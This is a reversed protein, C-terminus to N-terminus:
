LDNCVNSRIWPKPCTFPMWPPRRDASTSRGCPFKPGSGSRSCPAKAWNAAPRWALPESARSQQNGRCDGEGREPRHDGANGARGALEASQGAHRPGALCRHPCFRSTGRGAPGLQCGPRKNRVPRRGCGTGRLRGGPALAPVAEKAAASPVAIVLHSPDPLLERYMGALELLRGAAVEGPQVHVFIFCEGPMAVAHEIGRMRRLHRLRAAVRGPIAPLLPNSEPGPPPIDEDSTQYGAVQGQRLAVIPKLRGQVCGSVLTEHLRRVARRLDGAPDGYDADSDADPDADGDLSLVQTVTAQRAQSNGCYFAFEVNAVQVMDGDHLDAEQVRQGNVFTGNTSGLDRIRTARGEDVM